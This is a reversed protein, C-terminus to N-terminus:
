SKPNEELYRHIIRYLNTRTLSHFELYRIISSLFSQINHGPSFFDFGMLHLRRGEVFISWHQGSVRQRVEIRPTENDKTLPIGLILWNIRKDLYEAAWIFYKWYDNHPVM